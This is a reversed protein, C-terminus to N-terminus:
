RPSSFVVDQEDILVSPQAPSSSAPKMSFSSLGGRTLLPTCLATPELPWFPSASPEPPSARFGRLPLLRRAERAEGSAGPPGGVGPRARSDRGQDEAGLSKPPLGGWHEPCLMRCGGCACGEAQRREGNDAQSSGPPRFCGACLSACFLHKTFTQQILSHVFGVCRRLLPRFSCTHAPWPSQFGAM